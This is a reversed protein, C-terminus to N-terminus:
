RIPLNITFITGQDIRSRLQVKGGHREVVARILALGLGSGPLSRAGKGRYLEDWVNQIEDDPIGPGTDAVEIVVHDEVESARVEIRDGPRTYKVANDLLNYIALVLLDRDASISPLPWPAQPLSLSLSRECAEPKAQILEVMEELINSVNVSTRELSQQELETLKRLDASLRSLRLLQTELSTLAAQRDSEDPSGGLNALGARMATLPNKLEHDLRLIFQRREQASRVLYADVNKRDRRALWNRAFIVGGLILSCIGGFIEALAVRDAKLVYVPQSGPQTEWYVALAFGIVLPLLAATWRWAHKM